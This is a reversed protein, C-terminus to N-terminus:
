SPSAETKAQTAATLVYELAEDRTPLRTINEETTGGFWDGEVAPGWVSGVKFGARYIAVSHDNDDFVLQAAEFRALLDDPIPESYRRQTVEVVPGLKIKTEAM